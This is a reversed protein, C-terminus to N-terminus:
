EPRKADPAVTKIQARTVSEGVLESVAEVAPLGANTWHDDNDPDLMSLASAIDTDQAGDDSLIDEAHCWGDGLAEKEADEDEVICTDLSKGQWQIKDGERYLMRPYNSM